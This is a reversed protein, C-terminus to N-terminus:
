GPFVFSSRSLNMDLLMLVLTESNIKWLASNNWQGFDFPMSYVIFTKLTNRWRNDVYSAPGYSSTLYQIPGWKTIGLIQQFYQLSM